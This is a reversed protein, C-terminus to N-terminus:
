RGLTPTSAPQGTPEGRGQLALSALYLLGCATLPGTMASVSTTPSDFAMGVALGAALVPLLGVLLLATAARGPRTRGWAALPIGVVLAVAPILPGHADMWAGVQQPALLWWACSAAVLATSAWAWPEFTRPGLWAWATGLLLPLAFAAAIALGMLGGPDALAEGALMVAMLGGFGLALYCAVTACFAAVKAQNRVALSYGGVILAAALLVPVLGLLGM